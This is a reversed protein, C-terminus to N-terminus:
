KRNLEVPITLLPCESGKSVRYLDDRVPERLRISTKRRMGDAVVHRMRTVNKSTANIPSRPQFKSPYKRCRTIRTIPGIDARAGCTADLSIFSKVRLSVSIRHRIRTRPKNENANTGPKGPDHFESGVVKRDGVDSNRAASYRSIENTKISM